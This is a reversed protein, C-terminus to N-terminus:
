DNKIPRDIGTVKENEIANKNSNDNITNIKADVFFNKISRMPDDAEAQLKNAACLEAERVANVSALAENTKNASSVTSYITMAQAVLSSIDGANTPLILTNNTRALKNFANM